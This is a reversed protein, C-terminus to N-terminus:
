LNYKDIEKESIKKKKIFNKHILYKVYKYVDGYYTLDIGYNNFLYHNIFELIHEETVKQHLNIINNIAKRYIIPFLSSILKFKINTGENYLEFKTIM